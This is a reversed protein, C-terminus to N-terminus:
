TSSHKNLRKANPNQNQDKCCNYSPTFIDLLASYISSENGHDYFNAETKARRKRSTYNQKISSSYALRIVGDESVTRVTTRTPEKLQSKIRQMPADLM